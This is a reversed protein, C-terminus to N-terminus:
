TRYDGNIRVYEYSIDSTYFIDDAGGACLDIEITIKQKKLKPAVKSEWNGSALKGNKFITIGNIALTVKAPDFHAGSNGASSMIRGWNADEGFLATKVLLSGGIARACKTADGKNKASHVKVTIFKTAGEGDMVMKKALDLAVECVANLLKQYSIDDTKDVAKCGSAGNSMLIFMDSTSTDGDISIKHFTRDCVERIIKKLVPKSVEADTTIFALMTAMNPHIMGSGKSCGGVMVKKGGIEISVSKEKSVLDTTMIAEACDKGGGRKINEGLTKIGTVIKKIPLPQGIVGTSAVLFSKQSLGFLEASKATMTLANEHDNEACVNACGSNIVIGKIHRSTVHKKSVVVPAGKVRNKTFMATCVAPFDSVIMALDKAGDKKIGCHIGGARFGKPATVGTPKNSM